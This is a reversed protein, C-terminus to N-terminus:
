PGLEFDIVLPLHDSAAKSMPTNPVRSETIKIGDNIFAKDLSLSPLWAPFSRFGTIPKTVQKLGATKFPGDELTNLWDNLDGILLLPLSQNQQFADQEILHRVQNHRQREGLGLHTTILCLQGTPTEIVTIIAGRVKRYFLQLSIHEVSKLPWRSLIMNGYGGDKVPWNFQYSSDFGDFQEELLKPQDDFNSRKVNRDVEQLCILDPQEADIVSLVREFQYRRDQGGIGRHINYSLVRM